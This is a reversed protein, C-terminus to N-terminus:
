NWCDGLCCDGVARGGPKVLAPSKRTWMAVVLLVLFRFSVLMMAM